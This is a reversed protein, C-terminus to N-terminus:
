GVEPPLPADEAVVESEEWERSDEVIQIGDGGDEFWTNSYQKKYNNIEVDTDEIFGHPTVIVTSQTAVGIGTHIKDIAIKTRKAFEVNKKNKVAKIKVTGSNTINGFTIVITADWYMTDGGKNTMKPRSMTNEAPLVGTKNVVLFTNTYPSSSKRSLTFKQNVFNGFQTAMAGANWQANNNKAEVSMRCPTSGVSDWLFLLDYPLNGKKQEDLTDLIFSAVDEITSLTTRDVYLFFGDYEIISPDEPDIIKEVELGMIEAHAFDWKMETMIFVPLIGLKQAEIAAEILLTTKGTDSRGRTVTIHGMPLGPISLAEQLAPNFPIWTQAKFGVNSNLGKKNKFDGLSFNSKLENSVAESLSKRPRGRQAM